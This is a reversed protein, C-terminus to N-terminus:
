LIFIEGFSFAAAAGGGGGLIVKKIHEYNFSSLM